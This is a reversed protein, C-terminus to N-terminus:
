YKKLKSNNLFIPYTSNILIKLMYIYAAPIVIYFVRAGDITLFLAGYAIFLGFLIALVFSLQGKIIFYIVSVTYLAILGVGPTTWFLLPSKEYNSIFFSLGQNLVWDIRTELRYDFVYYWIVLTLKASLIGIISACLIGKRNGRETKPSFYVLTMLSCISLVASSFHSLCALVVLLCIIIPKRQLGILCLFIITLPDPFGIIYAWLYKFSLIFVLLLTATKIVSQLVAQASLVVIPLILLTLAICFVEYVQTSTNVRLLKAILPLLISEAPYETQPLYLTRSFHSYWEAPPATKPMPDIIKGFAFFIFNSILLSFIFLYLLYKSNKDSNKM